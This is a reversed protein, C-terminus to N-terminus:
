NGGKLIQEVLFRENLIKTWVPTSGTEDLWEADDSGFTFGFQHGCWEITGGENGFLVKAGTEHGVEYMPCKENLIALLKTFTM